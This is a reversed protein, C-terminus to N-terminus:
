WVAELGIDVTETGGSVTVHISNIYATMSVEETEVTVMDGFKYNIGYCTKDTTAAKGTISKKPINARLEAEAESQVMAPDDTQRADVFKEIRGFPSVGIRNDDQATEIVRDDEEGQGGAYIFTKEEISDDTYIDDVLNGYPTGFLLPAISGKSHDTGRQNMYTRFECLNPKIRVIDFFLPWGNETSENCIEQFIPFVEKRAFAKDIPWALGYDAQIQLWDHIDRDGDICGLGYNESIIEKMMDDGFDTKETYVTAADYAVIRRKLICNLDQATVTLIRDGGQRSIVKKRILWQTEGELQAPHTDVSRWIELRNDKQFWNLPCPYPVVLTLSGIDNVKRAWELSSFATLQRTIETGRQDLLVVEYAVSM